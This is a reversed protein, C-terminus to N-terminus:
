PLPTRAPLAWSLVRRTATQHAHAPTPPKTAARVTPREYRRVPLGGHALGAATRTPAFADSPRDLLFRVGRANAMVLSAYDMAASYHGSNYASLAHELAVDGDSYIGLAGRYDGALISSGTRVNTCPEFVTYEDLHYTPWNASNIQALGADLNHGQARLSRTLTVADMYTQPFYSRRTTNDGIAYEHWGSEHQILGAMTAVGVVPACSALFASAAATL